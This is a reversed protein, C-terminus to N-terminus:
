EAHVQFRNSRPEDRNNKDRESGSYNIIIQLIDKSGSFFCVQQGALRLSEFPMLAGPNVEEEFAYHVDTWSYTSQPFKDVTDDLGLLSIITVIDSINFRNRELNLHRISRFSGDNVISHFFFEIFTTEM